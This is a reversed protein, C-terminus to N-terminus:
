KKHLTKLEIMETSADNNLVKVWTCFERALSLPFYSLCILLSLLSVSEFSSLIVRVIEGTEIM